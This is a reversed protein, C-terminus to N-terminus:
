HSKAPEALASQVLAQTAQPLPLNLAMDQARASMKKWTKRLIELVKEHPHKAGFQSLEHELFVLCLADEILQANPNSRLGQKQNISRVEALTAADYGVRQLIEQACDAHFRALETRWKLYGVRGPPFDSRPREWRRLHQCRAALQAAEPANPELRRVWASLRESQVLERPRMQGDVEILNPDKSNAADFAAVALEFPSM